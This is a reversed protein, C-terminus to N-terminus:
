PSAFIAQRPQGDLYGTSVSGVVSIKHNTEPEAGRTFVVITDRGQHLNFAWGAGVHFVEGVKGNIRVTQGDWRAPEQRLTHLSVGPESRPWFTWALLPVLIAALIGLLLKPNARLNEIAVVWIPEDLKQSPLPTVPALPGTDDPFAHADDEADEDEDEWRATNAASPRLPIPQPPRPKAAAGGTAPMADDASDLKVKPVSSAAGTWPKPGVSREAPPDADPARRVPVTPREMPVAASLDVSTNLKVIPPPEGAPRAQREDEAGQDSSVLWDPQDSSPSFHAARRDDDPLPHASDNM